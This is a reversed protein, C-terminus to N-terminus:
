SAAELPAAQIRREEWGQWIALAGAIIACVGVLWLIAQASGASRFFLFLSAIIALAGILAARWGHSRAHILLAIGAFLAWVAVVYLLGQASYHPLFLCILGALISLLGEVFLIIWSGPAAPTTENEWAMPARRQYLASIALVVGEIVAYVGFIYVFVLFTLGPWVIALIGFIIACVGELMLIKWRPGLRQAISSSFTQLKAM